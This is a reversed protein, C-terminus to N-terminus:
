KNLLEALVCLAVLALPAIIAFIVIERATMWDKLVDKALIEFLQRM